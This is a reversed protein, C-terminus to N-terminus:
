IQLQLIRLLALIADSERPNGKGPLFARNFIFAKNQLPLVPQVRVLSGRSLLRRGKHPKVWLRAQLNLLKRAHRCPVHQIRLIKRVVTKVPYIAGLAQASNCTMSVAPPDDTGVKQKKPLHGPRRVCIGREV